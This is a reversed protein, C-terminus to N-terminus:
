EEAVPVVAGNEGLGDTSNMLQSSPNTTSQILNAKVANGANYAVRDSNQLYDYSCGSLAMCSAFVLGVMPISLTTLPKNM